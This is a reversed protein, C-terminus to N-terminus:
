YQRSIGVKVTWPTPMLYTCPCCKGKNQKGYTDGLLRLIMILNLIYKVDLFAPLSLAEKNETEVFASYM